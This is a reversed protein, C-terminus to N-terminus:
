AKLLVLYWFTDLIKGCNVCKNGNMAHYITQYRNNIGEPRMSCVHLLKQDLTKVYEIYGYYKINRLIVEYKKTPPSRYWGVEHKVYGTYGIAYM